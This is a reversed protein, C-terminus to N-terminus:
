NELVTNANRLLDTMLVDLIASVRKADTRVTNSFPVHKSSTTIEVYSNRVDQWGMAQQTLYEPHTANNVNPLNDYSFIQGLAEAPVATRDCQFLAMGASFATLSSNMKARETMTISLHVGSSGARHRGSSILYLAHYKHEHSPRAESLLMSTVMVIRTAIEATEACSLMQSLAITAGSPKESRSFFWGKQREPLTLQDLNEPHLHVLRLACEASVPVGMFLWPFDGAEDAHKGLLALARAKLTARQSSVIRQLEDSFAEGLPFAETIAAPVHLTRDGYPVRM